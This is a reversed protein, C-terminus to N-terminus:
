WRDEYINERSIRADSLPPTDRRHSSAWARFAQSWEAETATLYFPTDDAQASSEILSQLYTEITLGQAAAQAAIRAEIEPKLEVTINM